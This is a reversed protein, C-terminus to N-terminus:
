KREAFSFVKSLSSSESCMHQFLGDSLFSKRPVDEPELKLPKALPNELLAKIHRILIENFEDL